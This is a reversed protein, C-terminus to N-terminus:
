AEDNDDMLLACIEQFNTRAIKLAEQDLSGTNEGKHKKPDMVAIPVGLEQGISIPNFLLRVIAFTNSKFEEEGAESWAFLDPNSRSIRWVKEMMGEISAKVPKKQPSTLSHSLFQQKVAVVKNFIVLNTSIHGFLNMNQERLTNAEEWFHYLRNFDNLAVEVPSVSYKCLGLGVKTYPGTRQLDGDTDCLLRWKKDHKKLTNKLIAVISEIEQDNYDKHQIHLSTPIIYCNEPMHPNVDSIKIIKSELDVVKSNNGSGGAAIKGLMGMVGGGSNSGNANELKVLGHEALCDEMVTTFSLNEAGSPLGNYKNERFIKDLQTSGGLCLVSSDGMLSCDILLFDEDPHQIAWEALAHFMISSKGCGGKHNAFCHSSLLVM